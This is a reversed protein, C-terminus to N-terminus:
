KLKIVRNPYLIFNVLKIRTLVETVIIPACIGILLGMTVHLLLNNIGLYFLVSRTGAAFITHMLYVPFTYKSLIKIYYDSCGNTELLCIAVIAVCMIMGFAFDLIDWKGVLLFLIEYILLCGGGFIALYRKQKDTVKRSVEFYSFEMGMVFWVCYCLISRIFYPLSHIPSVFIFICKMALAFIGVTIAHSKEEFTRFLVFLIILVYLYWYPSTPQSFLTLWLSEAEYNVTASFLKKLIVTTTTFIVYPIGLSIFKNFVSKGWSLLGSTSSYKQYLYGSCFFLLQVHFCYITTTFARYLNNEPYLGSVVMSQFLHGLVVLICAIIKIKDIWVEKM